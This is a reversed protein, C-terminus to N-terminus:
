VPWTAYIRTAPDTWRGRKGRWRVHPGRMRRNVSSIQATALDAQANAPWPRGLPLRAAGDPPYPVRRHALLRQRQRGVRPSAARGHGSGAPEPTEGLLTEM